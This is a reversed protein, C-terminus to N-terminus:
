ADLINQARNDYYTTDPIADRFQSFARSNLSTEKTETDGGTSENVKSFKKIIIFRNETTNIDSYALIKKSQLITSKCCQTLKLYITYHNLINASQLGNYAILPYYIDNGTRYLIDKNNVQKQIYYNIDTWGMGSIQWEGKGKDRPWWLNKKLIDTLRNRKQKHM